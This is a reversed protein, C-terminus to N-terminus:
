LLTSVLGNMINVIVDDVVVIIISSYTGATFFGERLDGKGGRRRATRWTLVATAVLELSPRINLDITRGDARVLPVRKGEEWNRPFFCPCPKVHLRHTVVPKSSSGETGDVFTHRFPVIAQLYAGSSVERAVFSIFSSRLITSNRLKIMAKTFLTTELVSTDFSTSSDDYAEKARVASRGVDSLM